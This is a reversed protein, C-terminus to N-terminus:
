CWAVPYFEAEIDGATSDIVIDPVEVSVLDEIAIM